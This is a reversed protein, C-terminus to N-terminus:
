EHGQGEMKEADGWRLSPDLKAADRAANETVPPAVQAPMVHYIKTLEEVQKQWMDMAYHPHIGLLPILVLLPLFIVWERVTMDHLDTQHKKIFDSPVGFIMKRYLWLMYLAGFVVGTTAIATYIPAVPWSGALALFEGVFSNTLPLAVAALTLTMVVFAYQPM